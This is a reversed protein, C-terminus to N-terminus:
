AWPSRLFFLVSNEDHISLSAGFFVNGQLIPSQGPIVFGWSLEVILKLVTCVKCSEKTEEGM